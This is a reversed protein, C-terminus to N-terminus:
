DDIRFTTYPERPNKVQGWPLIPASFVERGNHQVEFRVSNMRTLGYQWTTGATERRAELLLFVEPDTGQVFVFLAGDILGKQESEYRYIPQTLLRLERQVGERDTKEASFQRAIGRMQRLRGAPADAPTPAEPVPKLEVGGREPRWVIRGNHVAQLPGLSLSQFEHSAHTFPSYWKHLSAVVEPRGDATWLFVNGYIEGAVPNSWQLVPQPHLALEAQGDTQLRFQYTQAAERTLQLAEQSRTKELSTEGPRDDARCTQLIGATLLLAAVLKDNHLSRFAATM